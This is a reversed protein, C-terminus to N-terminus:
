KKELGKGKLKAIIVILNDDIKANKAIEAMQPSPNEVKDYYELFEEVSIYTVLENNSSIYHPWIVPGNDVDNKFGLKGKIPQKMLALEGSNKDFVGYVDYKTYQGGWIHDTIEFPEPAHNGFYFGIFLHNLSENILGISIYNRVYEKRHEFDVKKWEHFGLPIKYKGLDIIFACNMEANQGITFITDNIANYIRVDDKFRHMRGLEQSSIGGGKIKDLSFHNPYEKVTKVASQNTEFLYAM